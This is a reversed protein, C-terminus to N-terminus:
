LDGTVRPGRSSHLYAALKDCLVPIRRCGAAVRHGLETVESLCVWSM